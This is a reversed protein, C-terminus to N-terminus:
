SGDKKEKCLEILKQIARNQIQRVYEGSCGLEEGVERLGVERDTGALYRKRLVTREISSLNKLQSLLLVMDRRSMAEILCEDSDVLPTPDKLWSVEDDIDSIYHKLHIKEPYKLRGRQASTPIRVLGGDCLLKTCYSRAWWFAYSAPATGHGRRARKLGDLFGMRAEQLLDEEGLLSSYRAAIRRLMGEHRTLMVDGAKRDGKQFRLM